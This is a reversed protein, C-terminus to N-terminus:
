GATLDGVFLKDVADFRPIKLTPARAGTSQDPDLLDPETHDSDVFLRPPKGPRNEIPTELFSEYLLRSALM